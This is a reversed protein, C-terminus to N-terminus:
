YDCVFSELCLLFDRRFDKLLGACIQGGKICAGASEFLNTKIYWTTGKCLRAERLLIMLCVLTNHYNLWRDFVALPAGSVPSARICIHERSWFCFGVLCFLLCTHCPSFLFRLSAQTNRRRCFPTAERQRHRSELVTPSDKRSGSLSPSFRRFLTFTCLLQLVGPVTCSHLFPISRSSIFDPLAPSGIFINIM